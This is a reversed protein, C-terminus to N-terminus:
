GDLAHTLPPMPVSHMAPEGALLSFTRPHATGNCGECPNLPQAHMCHILGMRVQESDDNDQQEKDIEENTLEQPITCAGFATNPNDQCHWPADDSLENAVAVPVRRWKNCGDCQVWSDRAENDVSLGSTEPEEM